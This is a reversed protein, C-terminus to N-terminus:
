YHMLIQLSQEPRNLPFRADAFDPHGFGFRNNSVGVGEKPRPYPFWRMDFKDNGNEDHHVEIAYNDAYPLDNFVITRQATTIDVKEVQLASAFKPWGQSGRFLAVRLPGSGESKLGSVTVTLRTTPPPEACVPTLPLFVLLLLMIQLM